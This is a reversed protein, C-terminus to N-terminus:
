PRSEHRGGAPGSRLIGIRAGDLREPAMWAVAEAGWKSAASAPFAQQSRLVLACPAEGFKQLRTALWSDAAAPAALAVPADRFIALRAGLFADPQIEPAPLGFAARYQAIVHDLDRVAVVVYAAGSIEPLTPRNKPYVRRERPTEDHILFPFLSGQPEPGITATEWALEVGDPRRRGSKQSRAAIGAARFRDLDRPLDDTAIAWACPGADGIMFKGWWHASADAGPQPAILELYSGDAFSALAMETQGNSHKGGYEVPLGAQAFLRSLRALDHGAVTVHDVKLSAASALHAIIVSM